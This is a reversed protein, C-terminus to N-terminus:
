RDVSGLKRFSELLQGLRPGQDVHVTPSVRCNQASQEAQLAQLPSAGRQRIEQSDNQIQNAAEILRMAYVKRTRCDKRVLCVRGQVIVERTLSVSLEPQASRGLRELNYQMVHRFGNGRWRTGGLSTRSRSNPWVHRFSSSRMQPNVVLVNLVVDGIWCGGQIFHGCAQISKRSCSTPSYPWVGGGM